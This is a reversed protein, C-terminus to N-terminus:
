TPQVNPVWIDVTFEDEPLSEDFSAVSLISAFEPLRSRIPIMCDRYQSLKFTKNISFMVMASKASELEPLMALADLAANSAGMCSSIRGDTSHLVKGKGSGCASIGPDAFISRLDELDFGILGPTTVAHVLNGVRREIESEAEALVARMLADPQSEDHAITVVTATEALRQLEAEFSASMIEFSLPVTVYVVTFGSSQSASQAIEQALGTGAGRGLGAIIITMANGALDLGKRTHPSLNHISQTGYLRDKHLSALRRATSPSISSGSAGSEGPIWIPQVRMSELTDLSRRDTDVAFYQISVEAPDIPYHRKSIQNVLRSGLGGAGIISVRFPSTDIMRDAPTSITSSESDTTASAPKSLLFTSAVGPLLPLGLLQCHKIFTRRDM